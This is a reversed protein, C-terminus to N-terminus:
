ALDNLLELFNDSQLYSKSMVHINTLPIVYSKLEDKIILKNDKKTISKIVQDITILSGPISNKSVTYGNLITDAMAFAYDNRFNRQEVNFLLKYYNYNTQIRSILDFFQKSKKTKRFAFVTAWVYPLSNQGMKTPYETTLATCTRQLIYDWQCDFIKKLNNDLILYDADIVITEDYPSLDYAMCRNYNKWDVFQKTDIDYRKNSYKLEDLSILTTPLGLTKEALKLSNTAIKVYDTTGNNNAFAIIGRSKELKKSNKM